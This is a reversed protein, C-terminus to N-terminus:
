ASAKVAEVAVPKKTRTFPRKVRLLERIRREEAAWGANAEKRKKKLAVLEAELAARAEAEAKKAALFATAPDVAESM